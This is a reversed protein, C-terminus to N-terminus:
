DNEKRRLFSDIRLYVRRKGEAFFTQYADPSQENVSTNNFGCFRQLDELIVKGDDTLAFRKYARTRENQEIENEIQKQEDEIM